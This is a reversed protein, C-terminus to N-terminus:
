LLMGLRNDADLRFDSMIALSSNFQQQRHSVHSLISCAAVASNTRTIYSYLVQVISYLM